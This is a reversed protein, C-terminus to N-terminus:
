VKRPSETIPKVGYFAYWGKVLVRIYMSMHRTNHTLHNSNMCPKEEKKKRHETKNTKNMKKQKTQKNTQKNAQKKNKNKNKNKNKSM